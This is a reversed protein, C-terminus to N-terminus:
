RQTANYSGTNNVLTRRAWSMNWTGETGPQLQLCRQWRWIPRLIISLRPSIHASFIKNQSQQTPWRQIKIYRLSQSPKKEIRWFHKPWPLSSNVLDIATPLLSNNVSILACSFHKRSSYPNSKCQECSKKTYGMSAAIILACIMEFTKHFIISAQNVITSCFLAKLPM